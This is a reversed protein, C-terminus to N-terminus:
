WYRSWFPIMRFTFGSAFYDCSFPGFEDELMQFNESSICFASFDYDKSLFDAVKVEESKRSNWMWEISIGYKRCLEDTELALEQLRPRM